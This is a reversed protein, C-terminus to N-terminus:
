FLGQAHTQRSKQKERSMWENILSKAAKKKKKSKRINTMKNEKRKLSFFDHVCFLFQLKLFFLSLTQFTHWTQALHFGHRV